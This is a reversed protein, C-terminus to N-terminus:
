FLENRVVTLKNGPVPSIVLNTIWQSRPLGEPHVDDFVIEVGNMEISIGEHYGNTAIQREAIDDWIIGVTGRNSATEVRIYRGIMNQEQLYRKIEVACQNCYGGGLRKWWAAIVRVQNLQEDSIM